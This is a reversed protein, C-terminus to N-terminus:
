TRLSTLRNIAFLIALLFPAWAGLLPPLIDVEGLKGFLAVLIVYGIGLGLAVAVGQMTTVRRGGRNLGFPLALLVMVFASLPYTLKQHWRVILNSPRYGSEVLENIYLGLEGISMEGPM